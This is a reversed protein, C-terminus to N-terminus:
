LEQHHATHQEFYTSDEIFKPIIFEIVFKTEVWGQFRNTVAHNYSVFAAFCNLAGSSSRYTARFINLSWYVKSYYIKNCTQNGSMRSFQQDGCPYIFWLSCICNLDGSSTRHAARFMNLKWYIKSYYIWNCLKMKNTNRSLWVVICSDMSILYFNEIIMKAPFFDINNFIYQQHSIFGSTVFKDTTPKRWFAM